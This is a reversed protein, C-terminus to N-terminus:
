LSLSDSSVEVQEVIERQLGLALLILSQIAGLGVKKGLKKEFYLSSVIPLLDMIIHHNVMDVSSELRKLDFPGLHIALEAVSLGPFCLDAHSEQSVLLSQGRTPQDQETSKAGANAAGIVSLSTISDFERFNYLLLTLFRCRFDLFSELTIFLPTQSSVSDMIAQKSINGELAVQLVVFSEPLRTEDDKTPPLLVFLHQAPACRHGGSDWPSGTSPRQFM